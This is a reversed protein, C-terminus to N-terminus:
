GGKAENGLRGRLYDVCTNTRKVQEVWQDFEKKSLHQEPFISLLAALHQEIAKLDSRMLEETLEEVPMRPKLEKKELDLGYWFSKVNEARGYNYDSGGTTTIPPPPPTDDCVYWNANVHRARIDLFVDEWQAGQTEPTNEQSAAPSAGILALAAAAAFVPNRRRERSEAM